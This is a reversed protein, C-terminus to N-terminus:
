YNPLAVQKSRLEKSRTKEYTYLLQGLRELFPLGISSYEYHNDNLIGNENVYLVASIYFEIANEPDVLYMVDSIFGYALGVKNFSRLITGKYKKQAGFYTYKRIHDYFNSDNKWKLLGTERPYMSLAKKLFEYDAPQLDFREYEEVLSPNTIAQLMRHVEQLPLFNMLRFEKPEKVLISRERYGKGISTETANSSLIKTNFLEEEEYLTNNEADSLRYPGTTRQEKENASSLRQIIRANTYGKEFLRLHLYEQGIFDYIRNFAVNDSITLMELITEEMSPGSLSDKHIGSFKSPTTLKATTGLGEINLSRLKELALAAAPLKVLSAPYFYETPKLRLSYTTSTLKKTSYNLQTYLVQLRYTDANEVVKRIVASTDTRLLSDLVSTYQASLNVACLSLGLSALVRKCTYM